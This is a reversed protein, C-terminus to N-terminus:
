EEMELGINKRTFHCIRGVFMKRCVENCQRFVPYIFYDPDILLSALRCMKGCLRLFLCLFHGRVIYQLLVDIAEVVVTAVIVPIIFLLLKYLVPRFIASLACWVILSSIVPRIVAIFLRIIVLLCICVRIGPWVIVVPSFVVILLILVLIFVIIMFIVPVVSVSMVSIPLRVLFLRVCLGRDTKHPMSNVIM